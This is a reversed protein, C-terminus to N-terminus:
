NCFMVVFVVQSRENASVVLAVAVGVAGGSTVAVGVAGGLVVAVGVAGGSTVAAGVTVAM